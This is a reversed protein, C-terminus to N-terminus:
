TKYFKFNNCGFFINNQSMFNQKNKCSTNTVLKVVFFFTKKDILFKLFFRFFNKIQM